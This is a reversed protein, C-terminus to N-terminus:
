EEKWEEIQAGIQKLTEKVRLNLTNKDFGQESDSVAKIEISIELSSAEGKLPGIVGSIINSIKDWSVNFKLKLNKINKEKKGVPEDKIQDDKGGVVIEPSTVIEAPETVNQKKRQNEKFEKAIEERLVVWDMAPTVDECYYVETDEKVGVIGRKVGDKIANVLVSENELIPMGPTKLSLEYIDRLLKENEEKAFTKEIIYKPTIRDLIKEQDKLYQRVREAITESSGVTPIGLDKFLLGQKDLWALHRYTSIIKFPLDKELDKIKQKLENVNEQTLTNLLTKDSQISRLALLRRITKTLASYGNNDMCIVFVTNRYVRFGAGAKDFLESVFENTITSGYFFKASLVVLKLAKNDPIDSSSEPWVYVEMSSGAYKQIFKKIEEQVNEESITEERDVIVRNLNPRNLFAYQKGESHFFWLQEELKSVADGLITTPIGERLLAVRLRPLTTGKREGGSFSYLFVSTAIGTAIKYKEYESGMEKDIKTAKELIDSAIVSEYENGIHKVFERRISLNQLNVLSSQILPSAVKRKYLDSVVEALLRLVGRTRQFTPFSGWREYLVDIIEPHFPYAHEIKERYELSKVEPPVDTGLRQYLDFYYQSVEKISKDDGIDDFLRKRIVEYIEVGEVPTYISEVRGYVNQLQTLTKEAYEDYTELISAPLTIVLCSNKSSAVVETIEQLFALTQGHTIKETKEVQSAKVIYELLEDILILTPGSNDIIERLKEKGPSVRKRDHEAITEYKGLQHAIEGWPTRGQLADAQTGVFVAVRANSPVKIGELQPLHKIKEFNKVTHYLTVLAHTKGGGFPTQLQIVPDSKGGSLRVVVNNVLNKLGQTLYTKQFFTVADSYELPANGKVVDGLDAAFLAESLKGERIDKHPTAVQWWSPLAM